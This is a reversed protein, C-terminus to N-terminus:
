DDINDPKVFDDGFFKCMYLFLMVNGSLFNSRKIWKKKHNDSSNITM